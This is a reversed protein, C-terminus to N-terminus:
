SMRRLVASSATLWRCRVSMAAVAREFGGFELDEACLILFFAFVYGELGLEVIGPTEDLTRQPFVLYLTHADQM